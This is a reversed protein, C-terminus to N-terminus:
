ERVNIFSSFKVVVIGSYEQVLKHLLTMHSCAVAVCNETDSEEKFLYITREKPSLYHQMM